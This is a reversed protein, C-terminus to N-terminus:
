LRICSIPISFERMLETNLKDEYLKNTTYVKGKVKHFVGNHEAEGILYERMWPTKGLEKWTTPISEFDKTTLVIDIQSGAHLVGDEDRFDYKYKGFANNALSKQLFAQEINPNHTIYKNTIQELLKERTNRQNQYLQIDEM